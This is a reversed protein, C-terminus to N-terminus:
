RTMRLFVCKLLHLYMVEVFRGEPKMVNKLKDVNWYKQILTFDYYNAFIAIINNYLNWELEGWIPVERGGREKEEKERERERGRVYM